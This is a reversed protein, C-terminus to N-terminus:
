VTDQNHNENYHKQIADVIKAAKKETEDNFFAKSRLGMSILANSTAYLKTM